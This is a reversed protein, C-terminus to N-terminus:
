LLNRLSVNRIQVQFKSSKRLCHVYQVEEFLTSDIFMETEYEPDCDEFYEDRSSIDLYVDSNNSLKGCDVNKFYVWLTYIEEKVEFYRLEGYCFIITRRKLM